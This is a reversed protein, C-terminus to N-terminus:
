RKVFDYEDVKPDADLKQQSLFAWVQKNIEKASGYYWHTHKPIETLEIPLGASKLADRTARVAALPFFADDTGVWIAIPIRRKAAHLMEAAEAPLAGAHAAGAAFFQSELLSMELTMVAGASHGFLYMRRPDIPHKRRLDQALEVLFEPADEPIRWARSDSADPAALIFKEAAALDKWPDALSQGDRGSGHLLVVLPVPRDPTLGDPVFLYYTRKQGRSVLTSKVIKEGAVAPVALAFVLAAALMTRM